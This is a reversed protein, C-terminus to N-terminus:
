RPMSVTGCIGELVSTGEEARREVSMGKKTEVRRERKIHSGLQRGRREERENRRYGFWRKKGLM